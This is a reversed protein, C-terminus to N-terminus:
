SFCTIEVPHIVVSPCKTFSISYLHSYGIILYTVIVISSSKSHRELIVSNWRCVSQYRKNLNMVPVISHSNFFSISMLNLSSTNFIPRWWLRWKAKHRAIYIGTQTPFKIRIFWCSRVIISSWHDLIQNHYCSRRSAPAINEKFTHRQRHHFQVIHKDQDSHDWWDHWGM